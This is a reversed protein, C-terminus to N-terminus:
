GRYFLDTLRRYKRYPVCKQGVGYSAITFSYGNYAYENIVSHIVSYAQIEEHTMPFTCFVLFSMDEKYLGEEEQIEIAKEIRNELMERLQWKPLRCLQNLHLTIISDDKLM